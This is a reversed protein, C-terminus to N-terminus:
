AEEPTASAISLADVRAPNADPDQIGHVEARLLRELLQISERARSQFLSDDKRVAALSLFESEDYRRFYDAARQVQEAPFGLWQMADVGLRLSTDLSARYVGDVGCDLLEYAEVRTRARALIRLQPFQQKATRIVARMSDLTGTAVILLRARAAGAARLLDERSADGYYAEVGLRRMLDVHDSDVDLVTTHIGNARLFRGVVSGFAGFGALIVPNQEEIVDAARPPAEPCGFRPQVFRENALLLFPTAAMSLAVTAVLLNATGVDLVGLQAAFSFLVFCFEGGQALAVAFHLRQDLTMGAARGLGLLVAFKLVVLGIVLAAISGAQAVVLGFDISAGVAIFFLGLLLGKFPEIDGELQHRYESNALVVGGLFTGLAPSLGVERMALAIAVVLLLAAATFVERM